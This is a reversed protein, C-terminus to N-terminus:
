CSKMEFCSTWHCRQVTGPGARGIDVCASRGSIRFPRGFRQDFCGIIWRGHGQAGLTASVFPITQELFRLSSLCIIQTFICLNHM